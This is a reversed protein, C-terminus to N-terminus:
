PSTRTRVDPQVRPRLFQFWVYLGAILLSLAFWQFAYGYHMQVNAAPRPWDRLLGDADAPAEQLVSVPRLPLGSERAFSEIKLNQRIPGDPAGAFEYLRAPDRALRGEVRVAGAPTPPAAIRAREVFDRPQWGRQVLLATGDDLQLPMVVVFGVRGQMQRNDLFIAHAPLWHGQLVVRRHEQALAHAADRALEQLGLAPLTGRHDTDAQLALKQAARDLQWLGLRATGGSGLLAAALLVWARRKM